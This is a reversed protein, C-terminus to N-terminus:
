TDGNSKTNSLKAQIHDLIELFIRYNLWADADQISSCEYHLKQGVEIARRDKSNDLEISQSTLYNELEGEPLVFINASKLGRLCDELVQQHPQFLQVLNQKEVRERLKNWFGKMEILNWDSIQEGSDLVALVKEVEAYLNLFDYNRADFAERVDQGKPKTRSGTAIIQKVNQLISNCEHDLLHSFDSVGHKLFDLDTVIVYDIKFQKLVSVYDKFQGKGGVRVVSVNFADFWRPKGFYLDALAPFIHEEGGEVLLVYDAFLMEANKTSLIQQWKKLQDKDVNKVDFQAVQTRIEGPNKRVCTIADFQTSRVFEPAHTSLIVQRLDQPQDSELANDAEVFKSLQGEIARRAQPHLYIEPEEALLLSSSQHFQQCYYQFLGIILASQIGSGKEYFPSDIGDNIFVTIQKHEDDDTNAGARFSIEHHFVADKLTERLSKTTGHFIELLISSLNEHANTIQQIQDASRKDYIHRILKGYWSYQNIRLQQSPDRFSPIYATTILANRLEHSLQPIIYWRENHQFILGYIRDHRPAEFPVYLCIWIKLNEGFMKMLDLYNKYQIPYRDLDLLDDALSNLDPKQPFQCVKINRANGLHSITNTEGRLSAIMTFSDAQQNNSQNKFFDKNGFDIYTPYKEGLLYDLAQIINSKGANNKGLLVNLGPRFVITVDELSRFGQVRLGFVYM